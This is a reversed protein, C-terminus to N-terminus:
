GIANIKGVIHLDYETFNERNDRHIWLNTVLDKIEELEYATLTITYTRSQKDLKTKM